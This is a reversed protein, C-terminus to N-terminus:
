RKALVLGGIGESTEACTCCYRLSSFVQHSAPIYFFFFFFARLYAPLFIHALNTQEWTRSISLSLTPFM